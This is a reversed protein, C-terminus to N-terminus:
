RRVWFGFPWLTLRINRVHLLVLFKQGAKRSIETPIRWFTCLNCSWFCQTPLLHDRRTELKEEWGNRPCVARNLQNIWALGYISQTCKYINSQHLRHAHLDFVHSTPRLCRILDNKSATSKHTLSIPTGLTNDRWKINPISAQLICSHTYWVLTVCGPCLWVCVGLSVNLPATLCVAPILRWVSRLSSSPQMWFLKSTSWGAQARWVKWSTQCPPPVCSVRQLCLVATESAPFLACVQDDAINFGVGVKVDGVVIPLLMVLDSCYINMNGVPHILLIKTVGKVKGRSRYAPCIGVVHIPVMM